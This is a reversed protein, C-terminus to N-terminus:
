VLALQSTHSASTAALTLQSSHPALLPSQRCWASSLAPWQVNDCEVIPWQPIKPKVWNLKTYSYFQRIM